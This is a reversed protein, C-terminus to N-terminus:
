ILMRANGQFAGLSTFSAAPAPRAEWAARASSRLPGTSSGLSGDGTVQPVRPHRRLASYFRPSAPALALPRAWVQPRPAERPPRPAPETVRAHSALLTEESPRRESVGWQLGKPDTPM